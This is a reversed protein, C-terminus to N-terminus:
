GIKVRERVFRYVTTEERPALALALSLPGLRGILMSIMFIAGGATSLDPVIGTSAGNTGFASVTDFFLDIFKIGPDTLTLTPTAVMIFGLGLAAVTLARLVQFHAIERGFAEAESRGRISSLVAAIVVAVTTVKIGGAVSGAAGGIFMLPIFTLKTFDDLLGFDVATFGATRGSVSHFVASVVKDGFNLSGLTEIRGYEALFFVGAGVAWLFLSTVIVLKTDLSFRAFRRNRYVDVLVTWGIGGLIMLVTMFGLVSWMSSLRALGTGAPSEPLISFGANNFSSVSLFASQWLSDGLGMGDIGEIRWFIIAAGLVYILFVVIVVNRSVRRLGEMRHTGVADRMVLREPLTSRQGILALLFTAVAMFGLGGVLMLLFIVAQGFYSWYTSTNVITHGTVTAASVSTFFAVELSTFESGNSAFPTALLLGGVIILLLFGLLLLNSPNSFRQPRRVPPSQVPTPEVESARTQRIVTERIRPGRNMAM